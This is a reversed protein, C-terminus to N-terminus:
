GHNTRVFDKIAILTSQPHSLFPVHAAGKIVTVQGPLHTALAVPVLRDQEGLLYLTPITLNKVVTVLNIQGLLNLASELGQPKVEPLQKQLISLTYKRHESGQVQLANFRKLTNKWDTNFSQSFDNFIAKDMGVWSEDHAVFCPNSAISIVAQCQQPYHHGIWTAISGGLSWGCWIAPQSVQQLLGAVGSALVESWSPQPSFDPLDLLTLDVIQALSDLWQRPWVQHNFSWGPLLVCHPKQYDQRNNM